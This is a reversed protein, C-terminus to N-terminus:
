DAVAEDALGHGDTVRAALADAMTAFVRLRQDAETIGLMRLVTGSRAVVRLDVGCADAQDSAVILYRVGSSDLFETRSLDAIVVRVGPRCAAFLEAGVRISNTIDLQGPFAVVEPLALRRVIDISADPHAEPTM